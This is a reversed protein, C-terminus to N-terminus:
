PNNNFLQLVSMQPKDAGPFPQPHCVTHSFTWNAGGAWYTASMNNDRIYQLFNGLAENWGAQHYNSPVCFEGVNGFAYPRENKVWEVFPRVHDVGIQPHPVDNSLYVGDSGMNPPAEQYDWYSHASYVLRGIPDRIDLTRNGSTSAPGFTTAKSYALGEVLIYRKADKKRIADVAQQAASKWTALDILPENMLDYGYITDNNKYKDAIQSWLNVFASIPVTSSGIKPSANEGGYKGYDHVDLIVKMGLATAHAVCQDIQTFNVTSNLPSQVRHWRFPLRILTLGKNDYYQWTALSTQWFVTPMFDGGAINVGFMQPSDTTPTYVFVSGTGTFAGGLSAVTHIGPAKAVGAVTLGRVYLWHSGLAVTAGSQVVMSGGLGTTQGLTLTAGANVTFAGTLQAGHNVKLLVNSSGGVTISGAGRLHHVRLDFSGGAGGTNTTLTTTGSEITWRNIDLIQQVGVRGNYISAGGAVDLTPLTSVDGAVTRLMLRAGSKLVLAGGGFTSAVEATRVTRGNTQNIYNDIPNVSAPTIGSGDAASNWHAALNWHDTTNVQGTVLYWDLPGRVTVSGAATGTFRGPHATQLDALPYAGIGYEVGGVNLGTFTLAQDLVVNSGSGVVLAGASSFDGNFDFTGSGLTLPGTYSTADDISVRYGGGGSLITNGHGLLRGISVDLVRSNSSDAFFSYSGALNEFTDLRVYVVGSSNHNVRGASSQPGASAILHHITSKAGNTTKVLIDSGSSVSRMVGDFRDPANGYYTRVDFGNLDFTDVARFATPSSGTGDAASKWVSLNDWNDPNAQNLSLYWTAPPAVTVSGNADGATFITPHAAALTAYSYTNAPYVISGVTLSTVSVPQDLTIAGAEVVLEGSSSWPADFDLTGASLRLRGVYGLADAVSLKAVSGSGAVRLEGSGALKGTVSLAVTRGSQSAVLTSGSVADLRGVSLRTVGGNYNEIKGGAVELVPVIATAPSVTKLALVASSGSLRLLGGAFTADAAGEPTRLLKNNASYTDTASLAVPSSGSGDAASNWAPLTNWSDPSAQGASLYWDAASAAPALALTAAAALVSLSRSLTRRRPARPRNTTNM